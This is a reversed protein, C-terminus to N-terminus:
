FEGVAALGGGNGNAIASVKIGGLEWPKRGQIYFVTAPIALLVGVGGLVIGLKTYREFRAHHKEFEIYFNKTSDDRLDQAKEYEVSALAGFVTGAVLFAGAPVAWTTWRKAFSPRPKQPTIPQEVPQGGPTPSTPATPSPSPSAANPETELLTNGHEDLAYARPAATAAVVFKGPPKQSAAGEIAVASVMALPDSAVVVVLEGATRETRLALRGRAAMQSQAAVFADRLKPASGDPLKATPELALWRQYFREGLARDGLVVAVEASLAYIERMAAAGHTGEALAEVLARRAQDFKLDAIAQKAQGLKPSDARASGVLVALVVLVGLVRTVM